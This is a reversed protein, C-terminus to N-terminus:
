GQLCMPNGFLVESQRYSSDSKAVMDTNAVMCVKMVVIGAVCLRLVAIETRRMTEILVTVTIRVHSKLSKVNLCGCGDRCFRLPRRNCLANPHYAGNLCDPWRSLRAKTARSGEVARGMNQM